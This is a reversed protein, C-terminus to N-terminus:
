ARTTGSSLARIISAIRQRMAGMSETQVHQQIRQGLVESTLGDDEHFTEVIVHAAVLVHLGCDHGNSQQPVPITQLIPDYKNSTTRSVLSHKHCHRMVQEAARTNAGGAASDLHYYTAINGRAEDTLIVLLSWHRGQGPQNWQNTGLADNIPVLLCRCQFQRRMEEFEQEHLLYVVVMPDLLQINNNNSQQQLYTFYFALCSANLWEHPSELLALDSEYVCADHYNVILEDSNNLLSM